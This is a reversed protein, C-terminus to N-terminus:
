EKVEFSATQTQDSSDGVKIDFTGPVVVHHMSADWLALAEPTLPLTVTKTEGPALHVRQFGKLALVPQPVPAVREHVYMEVVEDGARAGTNTVEVSVTATAKPRMVAPTVQLHSFAFSTYSLGYGFPFLPGNETFEYSRMRSPEHDYYDPLQGVSRPVTIPLKGSPNVDGFLVQALATGGREGPYFAELLAPVHAAVWPIALPRGNILVVIVPKGTALVAELLQRQPPLLDLTDRDGLHIDSWAERDTSENGGLVLVAVDAQRAVDAARRIAEQQPAAGILKVHNTYFAQWGEPANTLQCGQSYLVKVGAGARARIGDLVSVGNGPGPDRSYGGTHVDAANPGIVAITHLSNLDLPLLHDQDKLLVIGEQAARLALAQHAPSNTTRAAYEPDTYPDDFLGLRFKAALVRAAAQDVEQESVLGQRVQEALTQYTRGLEYDVGAGLAERSAQAADAAVHHEDILNQVGGGDSTIYGQFGWQERLVRGLLWHNITSPIGNIENYSAMVGGVQGQQVAVRFPVFFFARLSRESVNVPATNRGGEPEGHAAFHKATAMIHHPGIYWWPGQLGQIEALGMQSVLFPDEGFTEETRGWRPDRGLDLDPAFAQEVGASRMEDAAATYVQRVLSVDWTAALGTPNPFVTAGYSMFGHLAEGFFIAPIGLRTQQRIWRQVANHLIALQRTTTPSAIDNSRLYRGAPGSPYTGTTDILGYPQSPFTLQDAKEQLTMRALLDAVRDSVALRPNRYPPPAEAAPPPASPASPTQASAGLALLVASAVVSTLQLMRARTAM